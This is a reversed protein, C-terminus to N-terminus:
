APRRLAGPHISIPLVHLRPARPLGTVKPIQQEDLAEHELLAEALAGWRTVLQRALAGMAGVIRAQLHGYGCCSNVIL